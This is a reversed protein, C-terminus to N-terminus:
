CQDDILFQCFLSIKCQTLERNELGSDNEDYNM